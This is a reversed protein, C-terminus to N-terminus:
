YIAQIIISSSTAVYSMAPYVAGAIVPYTITQGALLTLSNITASATEHTNSVSIFRAGATITGTATSTFNQVSLTTASSTAVVKSVVPIAEFINNIMIIIDNVTMGTVSVGLVTSVESKLITATLKNAVAIQFSTEDIKKMSRVDSRFVPFAVGKYNFVVTEGSQTVSFQAQMRSHLLFFLLFFFVNKMKM